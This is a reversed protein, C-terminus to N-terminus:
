LFKQYFYADIHSFREKYWKKKIGTKIYQQSEFLQISPNNNAKIECFLQLLNLQQKAYTEILVLAEWAYGKNRHASEAILIGVGARQHKFDIEYLDITGVPVNSSPLTIIFRVQQNVRVNNANEVYTQMQFLSYPAETSSYRWNETNNEWTLLLNVDEKELPRLIIKNGKFM